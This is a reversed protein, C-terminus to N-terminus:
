VKQGAEEERSQQQQKGAEGGTGRRDGQQWKGGGKGVNMAGRESKKACAAQPPRTEGRGPPSPRKGPLRGGVEGSVRDSQWCGKAPRGVWRNARRKTGAHVPEEVQGSWRGAARRTVQRSQEPATPTRKGPNGPEDEWENGGNPRRRAKSEGKRRGARRGGAVPTTSEQERGKRSLRSGGRTRGPKEQGDARAGTKRGTGPRGAVDVGAQRSAGWWWRTGANPRRDEGDGESKESTADSMKRSSEQRRKKAQLSKPRQPM